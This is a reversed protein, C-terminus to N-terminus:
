SHPAVSRGIAEALDTEDFAKIQIPDRVRIEKNQVFVSTLWQVFRTEVPYDGAASEGSLM